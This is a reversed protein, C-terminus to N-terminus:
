TEPRTSCGTSMPPSPEKTCAPPENWDGLGSACIRERCRHCHRIGANAEVTRWGAGRPRGACCSVDRQQQPRHLTRPRRWLGLTRGYRFTYKRANRHVVVSALDGGGSMPLSREPRPRLEAATGSFPAVVGLLVPVLALRLGAVLPADHHGRVLAEAVHDVRV